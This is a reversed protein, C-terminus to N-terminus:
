SAQRGPMGELESLLERGPEGMAHGCVHELLAV